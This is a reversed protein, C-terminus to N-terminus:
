ELLSVRGVFYEQDRESSSRRMVQAALDRRKTDLPCLIHPSGREVSIAKPEEPTTRNKLYRM